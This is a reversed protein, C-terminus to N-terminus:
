HAGNDEARRRESSRMRGEVDAQFTKDEGAQSGLERIDRSYTQVPGLM